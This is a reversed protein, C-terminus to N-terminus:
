WELKYFMSVHYKTRLFTDYRTPVHTPNVDTINTSPIDTLFEM